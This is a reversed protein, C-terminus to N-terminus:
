PLRRLAPGPREVSGAMASRLWAVREGMPVGEPSPIEAVLPEIEVDAGWQAAIPAATQRCRLLPSAVVPVPRGVTAALREAVADAQERGM